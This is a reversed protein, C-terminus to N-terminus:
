PSLLDTNQGFLTRIPASRILMSILLSSVVDGNYIKKQNEQLGGISGMVTLSSVCPKVASGSRGKRVGFLGGKKTKFLFM